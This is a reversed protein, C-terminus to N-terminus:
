GSYVAIRGSDVLYFFDEGARYSLAIPPYILAWGLVARTGHRTHGIQYVGPTRVLLAVTLLPMAILVAIVVTAPHPYFWGWIFIALSAIAVLRATDRGRRLSSFREASAKGLDPNAAVGAECNKLDRADLDPLTNIWARFSDDPRFALHVKIPKVGEQKPVLFIITPFAWDLNRLRKHRFGSSRYGAMEDKSL